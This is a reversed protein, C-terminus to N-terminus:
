GHVAGHGPPHHVRLADPDLLVPEHTLYNLVVYLPAGLLAVILTARALSVMARSRARFMAGSVVGAILLWTLISVFQTTWLSQTQVPVYAGAIPALFLGFGSAIEQLSISSVVFQKNVLLNNPDITQTVRQVITWTGAIVATTIALIGVARAQTSWLLRRWSRGQMALAPTPGPGSQVERDVPDLGSTL